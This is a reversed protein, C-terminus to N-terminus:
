MTSTDPPRPKFEHRLHTDLWAWKMRVRDNSITELNAKIVGTYLHHRAEAKKTDTELPSRLNILDRAFQRVYFIGDADQAIFDDYNYKTIKVTFEKQMKEPLTSEIAVRPYIAQEQEILYSRAYADGFINRKGDHSRELIEGFAIGGRSAFGIALLANQIQTVKWLLSPARGEEALIIITDSIFIYSLYPHNDLDYDLREEIVNVLEEMRVHFGPSKLLEKFGMIDIYAVYREHIQFPSDM